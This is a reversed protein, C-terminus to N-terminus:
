LQLYGEPDAHGTYGLAIERPADSCVEEFGDKLEQISLQQQDTGIEVCTETLRGGAVVQQYAKHYATTDEKAIDFTSKKAQAPDSTDLGKPPLKCKLKDKMDDPSM